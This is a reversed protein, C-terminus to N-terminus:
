EELEERDLKDVEAIIKAFSRAMAELGVAPVYEPIDDDRLFLLEIDFNKVPALLRGHPVAFDLGIDELLQLCSETLRGSKQIAIRFPADPSVSPM